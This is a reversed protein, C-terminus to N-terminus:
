GDRVSEDEPEVPLPSNGGRDTCVERGDLLLACARVAGPFPAEVMPSYTDGDYRIAREQAVGDEGEVRAVDGVEAETVRSWAARCAPSYRLEVHAGEVVTLAATWVGIHCGLRQPDQARCEFDTCGPLQPSGEESAGIAGVADVTGSTGTAESGGPLRGLLLGATFSLAAVGAVAAILVARPRRRLRAMPGTVGTAAPPPATRAVHDREPVDAPPPAEDPSADAPAGGVDDASAPQEGDRVDQPAEDEGTDPEEESREALGRLALLAHPSAGTARAFAIVAQEPPLAKANLYREWSSKSYSTRRALAALTLGSEGRLRRLEGSLEPIGTRARRRETGM